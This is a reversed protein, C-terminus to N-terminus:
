SRLSVDRVVDTTSRDPTLIAVIRRVQAGATAPRGSWDRFAFRVSALDGIVTNAGGDVMRMLKVTGNDDQRTYYSVRNLVEVSAGAPLALGVPEALTLLSRQGDRALRHSECGAAGCLMVTKGAGWGSGDQVAVVSQGPLVSATTTTVLANVNALFVVEDVAATVIGTPTALRVDQEFVELGLRLDQQQALTRHQRVAQAHVVTFTHMVAALVVAGATMGVLLETLCVGRGDGLKIRSREPEVDHGVPRRIIM